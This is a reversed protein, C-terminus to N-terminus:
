FLALRLYNWGLYALPFRASALEIKHGISVYIPKMGAKTRLAVGIIEGNDVLEAYSGVERGMPEHRGCLISKACGITPIGLFLGPNTLCLRGLLGATVGVVTTVILFTRLSFQFRFRTGPESPM